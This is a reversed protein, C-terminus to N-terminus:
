GSRCKGTNSSDVAYIAKSGVDFRVEGEITRELQMQLERIQTADAVAPFPQQLDAETPAVARLASM